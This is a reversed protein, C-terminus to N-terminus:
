THQRAFFASLKEVLEDRTTTKLIYGQPKLAMVRAVSEKTGIGTLFIVPIGATMPESRLMQLVQPGDVIPMEYDLLILDVANQVLYTIAQMGATVIDVHYIGKLWERIIKAYSPDDDVLLIKKRSSGMTAEKLAKNVTMVLIGIEVPRKMWIQSRLAPIANYLDERFTEEGIVIAKKGRERLMEAIRELNRVAVRNDLIREALYCIFLTTHGWQSLVNDPDDDVLETAFGEEQLKKAIGRVVMSEQTRIITICEEVM